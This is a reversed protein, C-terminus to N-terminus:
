ATDMVIKIQGKRQTGVKPFLMPIGSRWTDLPKERFDVLMCLLQCIKPEGEKQKGGEVRPSTRLLGPFPGPTLPSCSFGKLGPVSVQLIAEWCTLRLQLWPLWLCLPSLTRKRAPAGRLWVLEHLSGVSPSFLFVCTLLISAAGNCLLSWLLWLFSSHKRTEREERSCPLCLVWPWWLDLGASPLFSVCLRQKFSVLGPMRASKFLTGWVKPPSALSGHLSGPPAPLFPISAM